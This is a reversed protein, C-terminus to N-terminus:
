RSRAARLRRLASDAGHMGSMGHIGGGPPTSASCLFIAPDSTAYPNLFRWSPRTFLQRLDMRGGTIDGGRDNPNAAELQAPTTVTTALIRDRFGPAYREIQRLIPETMDATSGNPVHCYAWVTEGDGPVRSRDARSPQALLVFPRDPLRGAVIDAESRAIEAFTGGVHVTGAEALEAARWPIPGDLALDLKFTGPGPRFRRLLRRDLSSLRRGAVGLLQDVGTDFLVVRAPPLDDFRIVRRGTEITGGLRRVEAALAEAVREAGGVPLPWGDVHATALMVLAAAGSVPESLSIQSHAAAGAFLARAREGRFRRVLRSASPLAHWAFRALRIAQRPRTPIPFPGLLDPMLVDWDRVLPGILNAYAPRDAADLGEATTAVDGRAVVASGDELPHGMAVAPTAWALGHRALDVSRFFPSIRGFPHVTSCRDHVFGPLTLEDSKLGGGVRDAAEVLHVAHGARALCIAAALGNPGGGVVVADTMPDPARAARGVDTM